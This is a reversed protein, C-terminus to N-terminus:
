DESLEEFEMIQSFETEFDASEIEGGDTTYLLSIFAKGKLILKNGILRVDTVSLSVKTKLIDEIDPKSSPLSLEESITFTKEKIRTYPAVELEDKLLEICMDDSIEASSCIDLEEDNFCVISTLLNAKVVFKRTNIISVDISAVSIKAAASSDFAIDDGSVAVSFPLELNVKSPTTENEAFYIVSVAASGSVTVKGTETDKSRIFATADVDLIRFIDPQIDPVIMEMTEEHAIETDLVKKVLTIREYNLNLDM